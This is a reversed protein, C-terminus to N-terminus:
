PQEKTSENLNRTQSELQRIKITFANNQEILSEVEDKLHEIAEILIQMENYQQTSEVRLHALCTITYEQHVQLETLGHAKTQHNLVSLYNKSLEQIANAGEQDNIARAKAVANDLINQINQLNM